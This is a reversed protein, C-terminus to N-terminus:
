ILNYKSNNFNYEDKDITIELNRDIDFIQEKTERVHNFMYDKFEVKYDSDNFIKWTNDYNHKLIPIMQYYMDHCDKNTWKNIKVIENKIKEFRKEDDKENDYSEDWWKDFTKFGLEKLFKLSNPKSLLIFPQCFCIAKFVKESLYFVGRGSYDGTENSYFFTESVLNLFSKSQYNTGGKQFYSVLESQTKDKTFQKDELYHIEKDERSWVTNFSYFSNDLINKRKMFNFLEERNERIKGLICLFTKDFKRKDLFNYDLCYDPFTSFLINTSVLKKYKEDMNDKINLNGSIFQISNDKLDNNKIFQNTWDFPNEYKGFYEDLQLQFNSFEHSNDFYLKSGTKLWPLFQNLFDFFIIKKDFNHILFLPINWLETTKFNKTTPNYYVFNFNVM